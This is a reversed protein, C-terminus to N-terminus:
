VRRARDRPEAFVLRGGATTTDISERLSQFGVGRQDLGTVVETLHRLSRGLRDLQWVVLTDGPRLQELVGALQPRRDLAGPAHDIWVKWCGAATLEDVQLDPNQETTSVRAYGSTRWARVTGCVGSLAPERCM